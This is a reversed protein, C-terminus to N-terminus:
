RGSHVEISSDAALRDVLVMILPEALRLDGPSARGDGFRLCMEITSVTVGARIEQKRPGIAINVALATSHLASNYIPTATLQCETDFVLIHCLKRMVKSILAM